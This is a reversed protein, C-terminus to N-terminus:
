RSDSGACSSQQARRGRGPAPRAEVDLRVLHLLDVVPTHRRDAHPLLKLRFQRMGPPVLSMPDGLTEAGGFRAVQGISDGYEARLALDKLELAAARRHVVGILDVALHGVLTHAEQDVILGDAGGRHQAMQIQDLHFLFHARRPRGSNPKGCRAGAPGAVM